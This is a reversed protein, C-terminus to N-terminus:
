AGILHSVSILIADKKICLKFQFFIEWLLGVYLLLLNISMSITWTTCPVIKIGTQDWNLILESPINDMIVTAVVDDLFQTKMKEFDDDSHKSLASTAKRQVFGMRKFLSHAWSKKLTIPRGYEHLLFVIISGYYPM